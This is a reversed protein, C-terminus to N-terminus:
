ASRRRQEAQLESPCRVDGDVGDTLRVGGKVVRVRSACLDPNATPLIITSLSVGHM